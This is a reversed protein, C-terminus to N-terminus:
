QEKSGGNRKAQLAQVRWLTGNGGLLTIAFWYAAVALPTGLALAARAALTAEVLHIAMAASFLWGVRARNGLLAIGLADVTELLFNGRPSWLTAALLMLLALPISALPELLDRIRPKMASNHLEILRPRMEAESKLPPYFAVFSESVHTGPGM